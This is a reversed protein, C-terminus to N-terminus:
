VRSQVDVSCLYGSRDIRHVVGDIIWDSGDIGRRFNILTAPREASIAPDGVIDSIKVAGTGRQLILLKSQAAERALSENAYSNRLAMVPSGTGATVPVRLGSPLDQYAATVSRYEGRDALTANWSGCSRADITIAPLSRGTVTSGGARAAVVLNGDAVKCTASQESCLRQLLQMDSETQDVHAYQRAALDSSIAPSLENESAITRVIDGLTVADWSRERPSRMQGTMDLANARITMIRLPGSVDVEDVVYRGMRTLSSGAYGISAELIAGKRPLEIVEDRDDLSLVMADSQVGARDTLVLSELRDAIVSTIDAGQAVIRFVPKV